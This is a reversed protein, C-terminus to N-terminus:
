PKGDNDWDIKNINMNISGRPVDMQIVHPMCDPNKADIQIWKDPNPDFFNLTGDTDACGIHETRDQKEQIKICGRIHDKLKHQLCIKQLTVEKWDAGPEFAVLNENKDFCNYNSIANNKGQKKRCDIKLKFPTATKKIFSVKEWAMCQSVAMFSILQLLTVTKIKYNRMNLIRLDFNSEDEWWLMPHGSNRNDTFNM